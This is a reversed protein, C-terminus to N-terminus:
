PQRHVHALRGQEITAATTSQGHTATPSSHDRVRCTEGRCDFQIRTDAWFGFSDEDRVIIAGGGDPLQQNWLASADRSSGFASMGTAGCGLLCIDALLVALFMALTLVVALIKTHFTRRHRM